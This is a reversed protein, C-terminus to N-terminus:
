MDSWVDLYKQAIKKYDHISEAYERSRRGHETIKLKNKIINELEKEISDVSAQIPVLPSSEINFEKLAVYEGGGLVVKGLALNYIANVGNSCSYVQDIVVNVKKLLKNCKDLPM